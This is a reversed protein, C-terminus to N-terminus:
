PTDLHTDLTLLEEHLARAAADTAALLASPMLSSLAAALAWCKQTRTM